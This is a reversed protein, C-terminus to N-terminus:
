TKLLTERARRYVHEMVERLPAGTRVALAKVDEFEPKLKVTKGEGDSAVKIGIRGKVGKFEVDIPVIERRLAFRRCVHARVGMTGAEKILVWALSEADEKDAIVEVIYGPRNKKTTTPIVSVDRAGAAMLTSITHGVVEGPVDDLNTELVCVEDMPLGGSVESGVVVRLINPVDRLDKSGAGYGIREVIMSPYLRDVSEALNVLLAMGTPTVLEAEVPGGIIPFNREKIMELTAPAPSSSIGHSFRLLGGGITIPTSHFRTDKFFGLDELATAVGIIDALTDASGTEHLQVRSANTGHVKAEARLMTRLVDKSFMKAEDSMGCERISKSLASALEAGTRHDFDESVEVDIRTARIGLRQVDDTVVVKVDKCGGLYGKVSEMAGKVERSDAGLDLLAGLLMDGSIGSIQCDIVVIRNKTSM